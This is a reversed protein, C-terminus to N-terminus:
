GLGVLGVEVEGGGAERNGDVIAPQCCYSRLLRLASLLLDMLPRPLLPLPRPFSPLLPPPPLSACADSSGTILGSSDCCKVAVRSWRGTLSVAVRRRSVHPQFRSCSAWSEGVWSRRQARHQIPVRPRAIAACRVHQRLVELVTPHMTQRPYTREVRRRAEVQDVQKCLSRRTNQVLRRAVHQQRSKTAVCRPVGTFAQPRRHAGTFAQSRGYVGSCRM